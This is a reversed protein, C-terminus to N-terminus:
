RTSFDRVTGVLSDSKVWHGVSNNRLDDEDDTCLNLITQMPDFWDRRLKFGAVHYGSGTASGDDSVGPWEVWHLRPNRITVCEGLLIGLDFIVNLGRWCGEWPASHEYFLRRVERNRLNEALAGCNGPLWESINALGKDDLGVDIGFQALLTGLAALREHRQEMFHIFNERGRAVFAQADNDGLHRPANPGQRHLPEYIPYDALIDLMRRRQERIQKPERRLWNVM